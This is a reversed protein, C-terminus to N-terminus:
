MLFKATSNMDRLSNIKILVSFQSITFRPKNIKSIIVNKFLFYCVFHASLIADKLIFVDLPFAELTIVPSFTSM